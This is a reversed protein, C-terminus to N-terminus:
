VGTYPPPTITGTFTSLQIGVCYVETCAVTAPTSGGFALAATNTGAGGLGARATIM